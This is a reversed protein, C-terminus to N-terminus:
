AARRRWAVAAAAAAAVIVAGVIVWVTANSGGDGNDGDATLVTSDDTVSTGPTASVSPTSAVTDAATTEAQAVTTPESTTGGITTAITSEAGPATTTVSTAPNDVDVIAVLQDRGPADLPVDDITAAPESGPALILLRPAPFEAAPDGSIWALEEGNECRQVAPFTLLDGVTDPSIFEVPFAGPRDTALSGGSWELVTKGDGDPTSTAQWGDVDEAVADAV